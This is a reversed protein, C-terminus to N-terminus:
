AIRALLGDLGDLILQQSDLLKSIEQNGEEIKGEELSNQIEGCFASARSLGINGFSSKMRHVIAKAESFLGGHLCDDLQIFFDTVEAQLNRVLDELLEREDPDDFDFNQFLFDWNIKKLGQMEKDQAKM